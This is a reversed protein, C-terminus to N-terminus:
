KASAVRIAEPEEVLAWVEATLRVEVPVMVLVM